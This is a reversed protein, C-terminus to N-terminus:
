RGLPEVFRWIGAGALYALADLPDATFRADFNPIWVEFAVSLAVTFIAVAWWPLVFDPQLRRALTSPVGLAVPVTCLPDLYSDAWTLHIGSAILAQHVVFAGLALLALPNIGGGLLGDLRHRWGRRAGDL